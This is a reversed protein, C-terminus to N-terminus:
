PETAFRFLTGWRQGGAYLAGQFVALPPACFADNVELEKQLAKDDKTDKDWLVLPRADTGGDAGAGPLEWLGKETLVVLRVNNRFIM